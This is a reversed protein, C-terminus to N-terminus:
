ALDPNSNREEAPPSPPPLVEVATPPPAAAPRTPVQRSAALARAFANTFAMLPVTFLAGMFGGVIVGIAIGYLVALPHLSVARGLLFPQMVHGEIEMVAVFVALMIIARVPGLTVFVVATAVTGAFLAGVLPVFATLFTLAGIALWTTSGVAFAGILAGLGDVAAVIVAARVYAVLAVWGHGAAELIRRRSRRPILISAARALKSGDYLFYFMAFLALAMGAFFHSLQTGFATAYGAIKGESNRLWNSLQTLWTDIQSNTIHFPGRKMWDILQNFSSIASNSLQTWQATIQVSVLFLIGLVLLALALLCLGAALGRGLGARVLSGKLPWFAATLLLAVVLPITVESLGGLIQGVYYVLAGLVLLRWAWGAAVRMGDRVTGPEDEVHGAAHDVVVVPSAVDDDGEQVLAARAAALAALRKRLGFLSESM